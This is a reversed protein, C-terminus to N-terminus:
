LLILFSLRCSLFVALLESFALFACFETNQSIVQSHTEVALSSAVLTVVLTAEELLIAKAVELQGVIM